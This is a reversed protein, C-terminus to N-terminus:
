SYWKDFETGRGKRRLNCAERVTGLLRESVNSGPRRWPAIGRVDPGNFREDERTLARSKELM